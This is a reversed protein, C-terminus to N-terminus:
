NPMRLVRRGTDDFANTSELVNELEDLNNFSLRSVYDQARDLMRLYTKPEDGRSLRRLALLYDERYGTPIIIRTQNSASLEANMMVRALRGNGDEFPHVESVLFMMFAARQFGASLERFVELGKALTVEVLEPLVFTTSGARNAKLKLEGPRKDPRGAMIRNHRRKLTNVVDEYSDFESMSVMMESQDVLVEFTGRIDHADKPRQEPIAGEFVIERAEGMVFKTGEIFNSFYADVFAMHEREHSLMVPTPRESDAWHELESVLIDFLRIRSEDFPSGLSRSRAVDTTLVRIPGTQLLASVISDLKDFATQADLPGVLERARDRLTNLWEEGRRQMERELHREIEQLPLAWSVGTNRTAKLNELYARADSARYLDILPMDGPLKGAGKRVRLTLGPLRNTAEYPGTLFFLGDAPRMEFASRHSVVAGPFRLSAVRTTNKRVFQDLDETVNTTYLRPGVKRILHRHKALSVDQTVATASLFLDPLRRVWDELREGPKRAPITM